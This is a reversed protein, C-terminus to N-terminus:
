KWRVIGGVAGRVFLTELRYQLVVLLTKYIYIIYLIYKPITYSILSIVLHCRIDCSHVSHLLFKLLKPATDLCWADM